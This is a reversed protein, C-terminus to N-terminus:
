SGSRIASNSFSGQRPPQCSGRGSLIPRVLIEALSDSGHIVNYHHAGADHAAGRRVPEAPSALADCQQVLVARCVHPRGRSVLGARDPILVAPLRDVGPHHGRRHLQPLLEVALRSGAEISLLPLEGQLGPRVESGQEIAILPQPREAIPRLPQIPVVHLPPKRLKCVHVRSEDQFAHAAVHGRSRHRTGQRFGRCLKAGLHM